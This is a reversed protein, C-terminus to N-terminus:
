GPFIRLRGLEVGPEGVKNWSEALFKPIKVLWVKKNINDTNVFEDEEEEEEEAASMPDDTYESKLEIDDDEDM